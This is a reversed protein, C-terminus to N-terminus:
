EADGGTTEETKELLMQYVDRKSIGRDKAALKMAEKRDAGAQEYYAVHEKMTLSNLDNEKRLEEKKRGEIVLVYEGKPIHEDYYAVAEELTTQVIEEFKKTLERALTVRRNGFAALMDALTYKLKHPAEYFILTYTSDKVENLHESRSRKNVSLFGEFSFRSTSLGSSILASIAATPGPVPIVRIGREICLRVLDEGPDSIAPTGADSVLAVNEGRELHELILEGKQRINHEYYSTMPKSIELHNLLKMTHRTDEAAIFDVMKLTNVARLTIDELNGIPTAVLYLNGSEM